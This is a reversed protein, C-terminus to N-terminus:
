RGHPPISSAYRDLLEANFDLTVREATFSLVHERSIWYDPRLTVDIKISEPTVERVHGLERGEQSYVPLGLKIDSAPDLQV